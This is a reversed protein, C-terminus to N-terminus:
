RQLGRVLAGAATRFRSTDDLARAVLMAGQLSSMVFEAVEDPTGAFAITGEDRGRSLLAALWAENDAFFAVVSDRMEQPLTSFEAALMGCLCLREQDLVVAYLETYAALTTPAPEQQRDLDQLQANFRARYREVLAIGLDAKGSFHYHLAPKTISLETAIDAYSFGNFGRRQVLREAVDLVRSAAPSYARVEATTSM